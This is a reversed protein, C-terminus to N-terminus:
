RRTIGSPPTSSNGNAPKCTIFARSASARPFNVGHPDAIGAALQRRLPPDEQGNLLWPEGTRNYLWYVSELNDGKRTAAWTGLLHNEPYKLQWRFYGTLCKLVRKDGSQEYYSQLVNLALMHPWADAHGM